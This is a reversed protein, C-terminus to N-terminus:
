IAHGCALSGPLVRRDEAKSLLVRVAVVDADGVGERCM